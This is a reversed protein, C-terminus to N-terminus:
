LSDVKESLEIIQRELSELKEYVHSPTKTILPAILMIAGVALFTIVFFPLWREIILQRMTMKM